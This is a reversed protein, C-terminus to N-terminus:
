EGKPRPSPPLPAGFLLATAAREDGLSLDVELEQHLSFDKPSATKSGWSRAM